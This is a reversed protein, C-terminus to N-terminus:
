SVPRSAAPGLARGARDQGGRRHRRDRHDAGPTRGAPAPGVAGATGPDPRHVRAGGRAAPEAAPGRGGRGRERDPRRSRGGLVRFGSAPRRVLFRRVASRGPRRRDSSLLLASDAQLIRQNLDRLGPGPELGLEGILQRRAQLYAALAAAQQGSRYLALMLLEHLRERLPEAATLGQLEAVVERHRGLHLDADIRAELADLRMEALRPVEVEVLAPSPVDALPEGRWLALGSALRSSADEWAGARAAALGAAQLETFRAVDLEEPGAAIVYGAPRTMIREYGQPGLVQRLRKIYNQLTVRATQPPDGEWLFQALERPAVVENARLLLVALLVRQKGASVMVRSGGVRVVLPGLLGFEM